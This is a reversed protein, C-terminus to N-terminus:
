MYTPAMMAPIACADDVIALTEPRELRHVDRRDVNRHVQDAAATARNRVVDSDTTTVIAAPMANRCRCNFRASTRHPSNAAVKHQRHRSARSSPAPARSCPASWRAHIRPEDSFRHRCRQIEEAARHKWEVHQGPPQPRDAVQHRHSVPELQHPAGKDSADSM